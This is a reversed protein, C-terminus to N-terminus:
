LKSANNIETVIKIFNEDFTKKDSEVYKLTDKYFSIEHEISETFYEIEIKQDDCSLTKGETIKVTWLMKDHNLRKELYAIKM